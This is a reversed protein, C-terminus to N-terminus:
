STIYSHDLIKMNTKYVIRHFAVLLDHIQEPMHDKNLMSLQDRELIINFGPASQELKKDSCRVYGMTWNSFSRTPFSRCLLRILGKHRPDYSIRRYTDEVQDKPGELIQLFSGDYYLLIGTVGSNENKSRAEELLRELDRQSLLYTSSSAYAITYISSM